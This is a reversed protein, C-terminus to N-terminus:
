GGFRGVIERAVAQIGIGTPCAMDCRGCVFCSIEGWRQLDAALKHHIRRRTRQAESALPNHGSAERMFGELQCSDWMRSREVGKAYRWDQVGFCTCTPCVLNCGTCAICRDGVHNWFDDPVGDAQIIAAARRIMEDGEEQERKGERRMAELRERVSDDADPLPASLREGAETYSLVLWDSGDCVLELDCGGDALPLLQGNVGCYGSLGIVIAACRARCYIDDAPADAFFRDIFALCALDRSTFGIVLLPKDPSDPSGLITAHQPFFAATPKAPLPGGALALPGDSLMGLSRTGDPLLVPALLRHQKEHSTLFATIRDNNLRKIDM